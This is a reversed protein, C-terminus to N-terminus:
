VAFGHWRRKRTTHEYEHRDPPRDQGVGGAGSPVCLTQGGEARDHRDHEQCVLSHDTSLDPTEVQPEREPVHHDGITSHAERDQRNAREVETKAAHGILSSLEGNTLSTMVNACRPIAMALVATCSPPM